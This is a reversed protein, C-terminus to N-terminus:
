SHLPSDYLQEDGASGREQVVFIQLDLAIYRPNDHRVGGWKIREFSLVNPDDAQEGGRLLRLEQELEIHRAPPGSFPTWGLLKGYCLSSCAPPIRPEIRLSSGRSRPLNCARRSDGCGDGRRPVARGARVHPWAIQRFRFRGSDCISKAELGFVVLVHRDTNSRRTQRADNSAREYNGLHVSKEGRGDDQARRLVSLSARGEACQFM